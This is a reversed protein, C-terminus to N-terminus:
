ARAVVDAKSLRGSVFNGFQRSTVARAQAVPIASGDGSTIAGANRPQLTPGGRDDGTDPRAGCGFCHGQRGNPLKPMYDKSGCNPCDGSPTRQADRTGRWRQAADIAHMQGIPTDGMGQRWPQNPPQEVQPEEDDAVRYAKGEVVVFRTPSVPQRAVPERLPATPAGLHRRYWDTSM